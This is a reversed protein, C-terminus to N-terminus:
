KGYRKETQFALWHNFSKREDNCIAHQVFIWFNTSLDQTESFDYNRANIKFWVNLVGFKM